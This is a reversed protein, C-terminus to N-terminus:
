VQTSNERETHRIMRHGGERWGARGGGVAQEGRALETVAAVHEVAERLGSGRCFKREHLNDRQGWLLHRQLILHTPPLLILNLPPLPHLMVPWLASGERGVRAAKTHAPHFRRGHAYSLAVGGPSGMGQGEAGRCRGPMHTVRHGSRRVGRCSSAARPAKLRATCHRSCKCGDSVGGGRQGREERQEDQKRGREVPGGGVGGIAQGKGDRGGGRLEGGQERERERCAAGGGVM